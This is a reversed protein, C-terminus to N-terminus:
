PRSTTARGRRPSAACAGAELDNRLRGLAAMVEDCLADLQRQSLGAEGIRAALCGRVDQRYPLAAPEADM